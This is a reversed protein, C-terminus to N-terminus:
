GCIAEVHHLLGTRPAYVQMASLVSLTEGRTEILDGPKVSWDGGFGDPKYAIFVRGVKESGTAPRQEAYPIPDVFGDLETVRETRAGGSDEGTDERLTTPTDYRLM